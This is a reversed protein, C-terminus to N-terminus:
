NLDVRVISFGSISYSASTSSDQHEGADTKTVTIVNDALGQSTESTSKAEVSCYKGYATFTKLDAIYWNKEERALLILLGVESHTAETPPKATAFILAFDENNWLNTCSEIRPARIARGRKDDGFQGGDLAAFQYAMYDNSKDPQFEKIAKIFGDISDFHSERHFAPSSEQTQAKGTVFVISLFVLLAWFRFSHM